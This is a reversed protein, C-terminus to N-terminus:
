AAPGGVDVINGHAQGSGGSREAQLEELEELEEPTLGCALLVDSFDFVATPSGPSGPLPPEPAAGLSCSSM